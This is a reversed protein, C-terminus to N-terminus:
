DGKLKSSYFHMAVKIALNDSETAGSTWIIEKADANVLDAVHKRALDVAEEAKWGFVHSRSAPNGYLGDEPSLYQCMLKAVRPDVPTTAAYDLYIPTKM